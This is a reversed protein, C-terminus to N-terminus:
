AGRSQKLIHLREAQRLESSVKSKGKPKRPWGYTVERPVLVLDCDLAEAWLMAMFLAPQRDGCEWKNVLRDAVGLREGLQVQSIGLAKRREAFFAVLRGLYIKGKPRKRPPIYDM